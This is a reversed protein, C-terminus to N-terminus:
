SQLVRENVSYGHHLVELLMMLLLCVDVFSAFVWCRQLCLYFLGMLVFREFLLVLYALRDFLM